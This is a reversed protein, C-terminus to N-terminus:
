GLTSSTKKKGMRYLSVFIIILMPIELFPTNIYGM